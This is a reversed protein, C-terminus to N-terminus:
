VVLALVATYRGDGVSAGNTGTVALPGNMGSVLVGVCIIVLAVFGLVWGVVRGKLIVNKRGEGVVVFIGAVVGDVVTLGIIKVRPLVVPRGWGAATPM